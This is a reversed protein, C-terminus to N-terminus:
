PFVRTNEMCDVLCYKNYIVFSTLKKVQRASCYHKKHAMYNEHKCFVINCENCKSVGQKVLVQPMSAAPDQGTAAALRLAMEPTLLPIMSAPSMLDAPTRPPKPLLIPLNRGAAPILAPLAPIPKGKGGAVRSGTLHSVLDPPFPLAGESKGVFGDMQSQAAAALLLSSLTINGNDLKPPSTVADVSSKRKLDNQKQM